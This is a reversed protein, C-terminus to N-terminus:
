LVDRDFVADELAEASKEELVCSGIKSGEDEEGEDSTMKGSVDQHGPHQGTTGASSGGARLIKGDGLHIVSCM